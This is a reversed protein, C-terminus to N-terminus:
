DVCKFSFSSNFVFKYKYSYFRFINELLPFAFMYVFFDLIARVCLHNFAINEQVYSDYEVSGVM